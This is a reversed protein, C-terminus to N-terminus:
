LIALRLRANNLNLSNLLGNIQTPNLECQNEDYILKLVSILKDDIRLDGNFSGHAYTYLPVDLIEALPGILRIDTCDSILQAIRILKTDQNVICSILILYSPCILPILYLTFLGIEHHGNRYSIFILLTALAITMARIVIKNFRDNVHANRNANLQSKLEFLLPVFLEGSRERFRKEAKQHRRPSLSSYDNILAVVEKRLSVDTDSFSKM